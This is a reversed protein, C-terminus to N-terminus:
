PASTQLLYGRGRITEIRPADPIEALRARLRCVASDVANGEPLSHEDYLSDEIEIRSVVEGRRRALYELLAYQRPSLAIVEGEHRVVRATTDLTLSGTELVPRKDGFRRRGLAELRAVLEQFDFPKVLYDDAGARLGQVRDDVRDRATLMLVHTQVGEQRLTRLVELGNMGPLMVDLIVIDYPNNRAYSLGKAGDHVVDVAYGLRSLGIALSECLIESDEVLLLRV